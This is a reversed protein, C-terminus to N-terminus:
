KEYVKSDVNDKIELFETNFANYNNSTVDKYYMKVNDIENQSIGKDKFSSDELIALGRLIFLAISPTIDSKIPLRTFGMINKCTEQDNVLLNYADGSAKHLFERKKRRVSNLEKTARENEDDIYNYYGDFNTYSYIYPLKRSLSHLNSKPVDENEYGLIFELLGEKQLGESIKDFREKQKKCVREQYTKEDSLKALKRFEGKLEEIKKSAFFSMIKSNELKELKSTIDELKKDLNKYNDSKLKKKINYIERGVINYQVILDVNKYVVDKYQLAESCSNVVRELGDEMNILGVGESLEDMLSSDELIGYVRNIVNKNLIYGEGSTEVFKKDFFLPESYNDLKLSPLCRSILEKVEYDNDVYQTDIYYTIDNKLDILKEKIDENNSKKIEEDIMKILDKFKNKGNFLENIISNSKDIQIVEDLINILEREKDSISSDSSKLYKFIEIFQKYNSKKKMFM